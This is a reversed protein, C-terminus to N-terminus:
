ATCPTLVEGKPAPPLIGRRAAEERVIWRIQDRPDRLDASALALLARKEDPSLTLIVRQYNSM